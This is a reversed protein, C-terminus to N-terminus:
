NIEMVSAKIDEEDESQSADVCSCQQTKLQDTQARKVNPQNVDTLTASKSLEELPTLSDDSVSRRRKRSTLM